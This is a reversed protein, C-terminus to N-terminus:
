FPVEEGDPTATSSPTSMDAAPADKDTASQLKEQLLAEVADIRGKCFAYAALAEDVMPLLADIDVDDQQSLTNAIQELRAYERAYGQSDPNM